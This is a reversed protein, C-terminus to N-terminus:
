TRIFTGEGIERFAQTLQAETNMVIPGGWAIPERLSHAVLFLFRVGGQSAEAEVREGSEFWVGQKSSILAGDEAFVGAGELVYAFVTADTAVPISWVSGSLLTVDLYTLAVYEGAFGGSVGGYEGAIIRVQAHATEVLPIDKKLRDHYKPPTMKNQAPLNLWLQAGFLRRTPEPMEQHLIGSGATMWQCDGARISGHNGLSDQHEIDGSILYTITEIGRHPHWPFGRVFDESDESDFADFLLFPDLDKAERHGLVRTLKVGAGDWAEEGLLIKKLSRRRSSSLSEHPM